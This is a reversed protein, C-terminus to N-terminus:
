FSRRMVDVQRLKLYHETRIIPKRSIRGYVGLRNVAQTSIRLVRSEANRHPSSDLSQPPSDLPAIRSSSENRCGLLEPLLDHFHSESELRIEDEVLAPPPADDVELQPSVDLEQIPHLIFEPRVPDPHAQIYAIRATTLMRPQRRTIQRQTGLYAGSDSEISYQNFKCISLPRIDTNVSTTSTQLICPSTYADSKHNQVELQPSTMAALDVASFTQIFFSDETDIISGGAHPLSMLDLLYERSALLRLGFRKMEADPANTHLQDLVALEAKVFSIFEDSLDLKGALLELERLTSSLPHEWCTRKSECNIFYIRGKTDERTAWPYRLPFDLVDFLFHFVTPERINSVGQLKLCLDKDIQPGCDRSAPM